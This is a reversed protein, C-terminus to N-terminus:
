KAQHHRERSFSYLGAGIVLAAGFFTIIDPWEGFLMYGIIVSFIIASYRFQSVFGIDGKRMMAVVLMNAIIITTAAGAFAMNMQTSPWEISWDQVLLGGFIMVAMVNVLAPFLTPVQESFLRSLSDRAVIFGVSALGFFAASLTM